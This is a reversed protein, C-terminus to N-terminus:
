GLSSTYHWCHHFWYLLQLTNAHIKECILEKILIRKHGSHNGQSGRGIFTTKPWKQKYLDKHYLSRITNTEGNTGSQWSARGVLQYQVLEGPSSRVLKYQVLKGPSSRVLKYQVLKGPSSGFLQYQVLDGPSSGALQYQM